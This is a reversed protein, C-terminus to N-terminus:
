DEDPPQPTNRRLGDLKRTELEKTADQLRREAVPRGFRRRNEAAAAEKEARQKRKRAQRLSVIEASMRMVPDSLSSAVRRWVITQAFHAPPLRVVCRRRSRGHALGAFHLETWASTTAPLTGTM